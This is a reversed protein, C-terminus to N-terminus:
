PGPAEPRVHREVEDLVNGVLRAFIRNALGRIQNSQRPV